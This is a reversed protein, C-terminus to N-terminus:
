KILIYNIRGLFLEINEIIRSKAFEDDAKKFLPNIDIRIGKELQYTEFWSCLRGGTFSGLDLLVKSKLEDPNIRTCFYQALLSTSADQELQFNGLSSSRPM